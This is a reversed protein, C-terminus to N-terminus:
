PLSKMQRELSDIKWEIDDDDVIADLLLSKKILTSEDILTLDAFADAHPRRHREQAVLPHDRRNMTLSCLTNDYGQMVFPHM